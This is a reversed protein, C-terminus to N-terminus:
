QLAVYLPESTGCIEGDRVSAIKIYFPKTPESIGFPYPFNWYWRQSNLVTNTVPTYTDDKQEAAYIYYYEVDYAPEWSFCYQGNEVKKYQINRPASPQYVYNKMNKIPISLNKPVSLIKQIPIAFYQEKNYAACMGLLENKQNFLGGGSSGHQIPATMAIIDTHYGSIIGTTKTNRKGNPAGLTFISEGNHINKAPKIPSLDNKHIQLIAIDAQPDLGVITIDEQYVIGDHFVIQMTSANEVVHYNTAIFGNKSLIIGSGQLKNTQIYVVSDLATYPTHIDSGKTQISVTKIDPQWTVSAGSYKSVFRLPVMTVGNVTCPPTDLLVMTNNVSAYTADMTLTIETDNKRALISKDTENWIVQYGLPEMIDRMPVLVRSNELIPMERCHVPQNDLLVSINQAFALQVPFLFCLTLFLTYFIRKKM